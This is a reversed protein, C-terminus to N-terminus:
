GTPIRYYGLVDVVADASGSGNYVRVARDSSVAVISANARTTGPRTWNLASAMPRAATAPYIRLHGGGAPKVVTLNYAVAVAGSPVIGGWNPAGAADRGDVMWLTRDNQFEGTPLPGPSPAAARSDYTRAPVGAVFEAGDAADSFYGVIDFLLHVPKGSSNFIRIQRDADIRVQSGNAVTDGDGGFNIISAGPMEADAPFVRLHGSASPRVVTVNYAVASAGPVVVGKAAGASPSQDAVSITRTEGPALDTSLTQQSDFVRVPAIPTFRGDAGAAQAAPAAVSGPAPVYYGVIDVIGQVPAPAGNFVRIARNADVQVVSSNAITSGPEFNIASAPSATWDGPMVRLHGAATPSAVTLNYAVAVAGVPVVDRAGGLASVQNAVPVLRTEQVALPGAGGNVERSDWVRVPTIPVFVSGTPVAPTVSMADSAPGAGRANVARLRVSYAVGNDLHDITAPSMTIGPSFAQWVGGDLSYEYSTLPMGGTHPQTFALRALGDGGAIGSLVPASPISLVTLAVVNSAPGAGVANVARLAVRYTTGNALGTLRLPSGASEPSRATWTAGGDLSYQYTRIPLGGDAGARFDVTGSGDAGAAATVTPAGPPGQPTVNVANSALSPGATFLLGNYAKLRVTYTTANALGSLVLPSSVSQPDRVKWTAGNDLSYLYGLVAAGGDWGPATFNITATGIGASGGVITPADPSFQMPVWYANKAFDQTFYRKYTSAPAEAYGVGVFTVLPDMLDQCHASSAIWANVSAAADAYGANINESARMWSFGQATIRDGYTQGALNTHSFYNNAGMDQSHLRAARALRGDWRLQPAAPYWTTGCYRGTQRAINTLRFIELEVDEPVAQTSISSQQGVPAVPGDAAYAAAGFGLVAGCVAMATLLLLLLRRM